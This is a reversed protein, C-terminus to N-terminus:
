SLNSLTVIKQKNKKEAINEILEKCSKSEPISLSKSSKITLTEGNEAIRNVSLYRPTFHLCLTGVWPLFL